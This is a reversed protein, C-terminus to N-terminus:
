ASSSRCSSIASDGPRSWRDRPRSRPTSSGRRARWGANSQGGSRRCVTEPRAFLLPSRLMARQVAGVRTRGWRVALEGYGPLSVAALLRSVEPGLGVSGALVVAGVREPWGLAVRLALLGGLSNGVVAAKGSQTAELFGAVVRTLADSSYDTRSGQAADLELLSPALVRRSRSLRPMVWRWASRASEGNGHLLVVPEGQGCALYPVSLDGVHVRRQELHAAPARSTVGADDRM